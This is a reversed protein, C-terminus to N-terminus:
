KVFEVNELDKFQQDGTLFKIGVLKAITYGISDIYSINRKRHFAKFETAKKLVSDTIETTYYSYEDFRLDAEEKGISLLLGYHLEMLNLKTTVMSVENKYKQYNPNGKLIEFFAYTDFFFTDIAGV